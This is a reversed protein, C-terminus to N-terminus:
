PWEARTLMGWDEAIRGDAFRYIAIASARFPADDKEQSFRWRVAVRDGEEVMDLIQLELNPSLARITALM